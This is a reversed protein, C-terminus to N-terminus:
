AAGKGSGCLLSLSYERAAAMEKDRESQPLPKLRQEELWWEKLRARLLDAAQRYAADDRCSHEGRDLLQAGALYVDDPTPPHTTM